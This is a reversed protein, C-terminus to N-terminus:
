DGCMLTIRGSLKFTTMILQKQELAVRAFVSRYVEGGKVYGLNGKSKQNPARDKGNSAKTEMQPNPQSSTQSGDRYPPQPTTEQQDNDGERHILIKGIKIGKCCARLANEMSEGCNSNDGAKRHQCFIRHLSRGVKQEKWLGGTLDFLAKMQASM